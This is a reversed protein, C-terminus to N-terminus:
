VIAAQYNKTVKEFAKSPKLADQYLLKDKKLSDYHMLKRMKSTDCHM